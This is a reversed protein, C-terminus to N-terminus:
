PLSAIIKRYEEEDFARHTASRFYGKSAMSLSIRALTTDDPADIFVALDYEGMLLYVSKLKGGVAEIAKRAADVRGPSDKVKEIGEKTWQMLSLYTPM